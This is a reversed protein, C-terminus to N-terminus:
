KVRAANVETHAPSGAGVADSGREEIWGVIEAFGAIEALEFMQLMKEPVRGTGLASKDIGARM